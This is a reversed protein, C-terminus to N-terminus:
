TQLDEFKKDYNEKIAYVKERIKALKVIQDEVKDQFQPVKEKLDNITLDELMVVEHNRHEGLLCKFCISCLDNKCFAKVDETPHIKCQPM